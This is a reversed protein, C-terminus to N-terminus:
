LGLANLTRKKGEEVAPQGFPSIDWMTAVLLTEVMCHAVIAGLVTVNLTSFKIVRTPHGRQHIVEMTANQQASYINAANITTLKPMLLDNAMIVPNDSCHEYEEVLFTFLKDRRGDLYMQLQSHQDLSGTGIVPTTGNRDKGLSEAWLQRHWRAFESLRESYTFMVHTNKAEHQIHWAVSKYLDDNVAMNRLLNSAGLFIEDPNMGLCLAPVMGVLSFFSFRGGIDMDHNIITLKNQRGWRRLKNDDNQTLLVVRDSLSLNNDSLKNQLFAALILTELTDGSKSVVLFRSHVLNITLLQQSLYYPEIRDWYIINLNRKKPYTLSMVRDLTRASLSSGGVGIIVLNDGTSLKNVADKVDPETLVHRCRNIDLCAIEGNKIQESLVNFSSDLKNKVVDPLVTAPSFSLSFM